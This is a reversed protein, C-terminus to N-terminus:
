LVLALIRNVCAEEQRCGGKELDTGQLLHQMRKQARDAPDQAVRWASVARVGELQPLEEGAQM